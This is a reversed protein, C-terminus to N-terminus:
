IEFNLEVTAVILSLFLKSKLNKDFIESGDILVVKVRGFGVFHSDSLKSIKGFLLENM